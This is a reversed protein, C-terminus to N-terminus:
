NERVSEEGENLFTAGRYPVSVSTFTRGYFMECFNLFTAGRYPVSVNELKKEKSLEVIYNLFTAGRYPVSVSFRNGNACTITVM